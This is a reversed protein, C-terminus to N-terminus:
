TPRLAVCVVRFGISGLDFVYRDRSRYASRCIDPDYFYSGGRVVKGRSESSLWASGDIPAGNYDKHWDDECWEWVNGHMDYLGFNNPPFIGVKTIKEQSKETAEAEYQKSTNYNALKGTVTAGFYFPTKTGARAAYEWEAESPLRYETGTQQSLQHCFEKADDWSINAVPHLPNERFPAPNNGMIAQWQEQTVPYKGMFFPQIKILHQPQESRFGEWKFKKILREIEAEETGMLFEGGPIAVMELEVGNGLDEILYRVEKTTRNNVEGRSNVIVVEFSFKKISVKFKYDFEAQELITQSIEAVETASLELESQFEKLQTEIEENFPYYGQEIFKTLVTIYDEKVQKLKELQKQKALEAKEIATQELQINRSIEDDRIKKAKSESIGLTKALKTLKYDEILNIKHNEDIAETVAQRFTAEVDPFSETSSNGSEVSLNKDELNNDPEPIVTKIETIAVPLSRDFRNADIFPIQKSNTARKVNERVYEFLEGATVIGDNNEDAKGRMGELIFHTFVGHGGGWQKGEQSLQTAEASTVIAIGGKFNNLQQLYRTVQDSNNNISRNEVNNIDRYNIGGSHCTDALIIVKKAKITKKLASNIAEMELATGSIDDHETDHTLLYKNEPLDFDPAGHCAFYILVLDESNPKKLFTNLAKRINRTTAQQNILLKINNKPFDGYNNSQLLEYLEEADRHAYDLNWPQYKYESIGVIVAWKEINRYREVPILKREQM